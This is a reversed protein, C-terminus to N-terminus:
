GEGECNGEAIFKSKLPLLRKPPPQRLPILPADRYCLDNSFRIIEPVCRFHERLSTLSGFAREAHDFAWRTHIFAYQEKTFVTREGAADISALGTPQGQFDGLEFALDPNSYQAWSWLADTPIWEGWNHDHYGAADIEYVRGDVALRGSVQARPM